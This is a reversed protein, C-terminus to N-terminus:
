HESSPLYIWANTTFEKMAVPTQRSVEPKAALGLTRGSQDYLEESFIVGLNAHPNKAMAERLPMADLLRFTEMIAPGTHGNPTPVVTGYHLALRARPHEKNSFTERSLANKMGEVYLDLSHLQSSDLKPYLTWIMEGTTGQECQADYIGAHKAADERAAHLLELSRRQEHDSLSSFGAIETAICVAHRRRSPTSINDGNILRLRLKDVQKAVEAAGEEQRLNELRETLSKLLLYEDEGALKSTALHGLLALGASRKEQTEETAQEAAWTFRRWWEERRAALERQEVDRQAAIERQGTARDTAKVSYRVGLLAGGATLVGTGLSLAVQLWPNM